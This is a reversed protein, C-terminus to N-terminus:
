PTTLEAQGCQKRVAAAYGSGLGAAYIIFAALTLAMLLLVLGARRWVRKAKQWQEAAKAARLEATERDAFM